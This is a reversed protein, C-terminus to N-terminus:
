VYKQLQSDRAFRWGNRLLKLMGNRFNYYPQTCGCTWHVYSPRCHPRCQPEARHEAKTRSRRVRARLEPGSLPLPSPSPLLLLQRQWPARLLRAGLGSAWVSQPRANGFTSYPDRVAVRAGSLTATLSVRIANRPEGFRGYGNALAPSPDACTRHHCHYSELVYEIFEAAWQLFLVNPNRNQARM